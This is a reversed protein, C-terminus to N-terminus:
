KLFFFSVRGKDRESAVIIQDGLLCMGKIEQINDPLENSQIQAGNDPKLYTVRKDCSDVALIVNHSPVYLLLDQYKARWVVKNDECSTARVTDMDTVNVVLLRLPDPVYWM